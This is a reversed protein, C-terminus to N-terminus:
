HEDMTDPGHLRRHAARPWVLVRTTLAESGRAPEGLPTRNYGGFLFGSHHYSAGSGQHLLSTCRAYGTGFNRFVAANDTSAGVDTAHFTCWPRATSDPVHRDRQPTQVDPLPGGTPHRVKRVPRTFIVGVAAIGVDGPIVNPSAARAPPPPPPTTSAPSIVLTLTPLTVTNVGDSVSWIINRYTGAQPYGKMRGANVDVKAWSPANQVRFTLPKGEPDRAWPAFTYWTGVKGTASPTGAVIPPKNVTQAVATAAAFAGLVAVSAVATRRTRQFPM